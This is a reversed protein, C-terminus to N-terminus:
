VQPQHANGANESYASYGKLFVFKFRFFSIYLFLFTGSDIEQPSRIMKKENASGCFFPSIYIAASILLIFAVIFLFSGFGLLCIV